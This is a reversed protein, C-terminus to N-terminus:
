NVDKITEILHANAKIANFTAPEIEFDLTAAFRVARLMRLYDEKFRDVPNGVTRIIKKKIDEEGNVYDILRKKVPDYFLANITFDRRMADEKDNSFTIAVPRRGDHYSHDSRFTAVEYDIDDMRVRIVGFTKGVAVCKPFIDMVIDPTASTAIDFDYIDTHRKMLADRVCGGAYLTTHGEAQLTSVIKYAGKAAPSDFKLEKM